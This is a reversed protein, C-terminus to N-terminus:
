SSLVRVAHMRARSPTTLLLCANQFCEKRTIFDGGGRLNFGSATKSGFILRALFAAGWSFIFSNVFTKGKFWPFIFSLLILLFLQRASHPLLRSPKKETFDDGSLTTNGEKEMGRERKGQCVASVACGLCPVRSGVVGALEGDSEEAQSRSLGARFLSGTHTCSTTWCRRLNQCVGQPIISGKHFASTLVLWPGQKEGWM